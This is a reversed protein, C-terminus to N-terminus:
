PRSPQRQAARRSARNEGSPLLKRRRREIESALAIAQQSFERLGAYRAEMIAADAHVAARDLDAPGGRSLLAVALQHEAFAIADSKKLRRALPLVRDLFSVIAHDFLGEAGFTDGIRAEVHLLGNDDNLLQCFPRGVEELIRRACDFRWIEYLEGAAFLVDHRLFRIDALELFLPMVEERLVRISENMEGRFALDKAWLANVGAAKLFCHLNAYRRRLGHILDRREAPVMDAFDVMAHALIADIEAEENGEKRALSLAGDSALLAARRAEDRHLLSEGRHAYHTAKYTLQLLSEISASGGGVERALLRDAEERLTVWDPDADHDAGLGKIEISAARIDHLDPVAKALAAAGSDSLLVVMPGRVLQRLQDRSLNLGAALRGEDANVLTDGDPIVIGEQPGLAGRLLLELRAAGDAGVPFITLAAIGEQDAWTRLARLVDKRSAEDVMIPLFAFRRGGRRLTRRLSALSSAGEALSVWPAFANM